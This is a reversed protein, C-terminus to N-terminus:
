PKSRMTGALFSADANEIGTWKRWFENDERICTRIRCGPCHSLHGDCRCIVCYKPAFAQYDSCEGENSGKKAVGLLEQPISVDDRQLLSVLRSRACLSLNGLDNKSWCGLAPHAYKLCARAVVDLHDAVLCLVDLPLELLRLKEWKHEKSPKYDSTHETLSVTNSLTLNSYCQGNDPTSTTPSQSLPASLDLPCSDPVCSTSCAERQQYHRSQNPHTTVSKLRPLESCPAVMFLVELPRTSPPKNALDVTDVEVPSLKIDALCFPSDYNLESFRASKKSRKSRISLAFEEDDTDDATTDKSTSASTKLQKSTLSQGLGRTVSMDFDMDAADDATADPSISASKRKSAM